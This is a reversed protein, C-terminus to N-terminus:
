VRFDPSDSDCFTSSFTKMECKEEEKDQDEDESEEEEETGRMCNIEEVSQAFVTAM